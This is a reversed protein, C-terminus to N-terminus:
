SKMPISGWRGRKKKVVLAYNSLMDHMDEMERSTAVM